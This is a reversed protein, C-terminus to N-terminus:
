RPARSPSDRGFQPDGITQERSPAWTVPMAVFVTVPCGRFIGPSFRFRKVAEVTALDLETIGSTRLLRIPDPTGDARVLFAVMATGGRNAAMLAPPYSRQMFDAAASRNILEPKKSLREEPDTVPEMERRSLTALYLSDFSEVISRGDGTRGDAWAPCESPDLPPLAAHNSTAACATTTLALTFVAFTDIGNM